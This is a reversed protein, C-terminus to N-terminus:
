EEDNFPPEGPYGPQAARSPYPPFPPARHLDPQAPPPNMPRAPWTPPYTPQERNLGPQAPPMPRVPRASPYPPQGQSLDPFVPGSPPQPRISRPPSFPQQEYQQSRLRQNDAQLVRNRLQEAAILEEQQRLKVEAEHQRQAAELQQLVIVDDKWRRSTMIAYVWEAAILLVGLVVLLIRVPTVLSPSSVLRDVFFAGVIFLVLAAHTLIFSVYPVTKAAQEQKRLNLRLFDLQSFNPTKRM